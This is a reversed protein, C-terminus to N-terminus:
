RERRGRLRQWFLGEFLSPNRFHNGLVESTEKKPRNGEEPLAPWVTQM